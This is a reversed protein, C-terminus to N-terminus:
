AAEKRIEGGGNSPLMECIMDALRAAADSRGVSSAAEAAGALIREMSFLSALRAAIMEPEFSDQPILWGGGAADIAEANATQHDDIAHPYPVFIAPRGIATIEAITSAGSRSILLQAGAIRRPIDDFFDSLEAEMGLDGYARATRALDEPRCQQTIALRRRLGDDLLAIARPIVQSFISAGQSGGLVLLHLRDASGIPPYPSGSLAAVCAGM